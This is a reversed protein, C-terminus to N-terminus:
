RCRSRCLQVSQARQPRVMQGSHWIGPAPPTRQAGQTASSPPRTEQCGTPPGGGFGARTRRERDRARDKGIAAGEQSAAVPAGTLMPTSPAETAIQSAPKKVALRGTMQSAASGPVPQCSQRNRVAGSADGAARSM